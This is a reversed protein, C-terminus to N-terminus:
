RKCNLKINFNNPKNEQLYLLHGKNPTEDALISDGMSKMVQKSKWFNYSTHLFHITMAKVCLILHTVTGTKLKEVMVLSNFKKYICSTKFIDQITNKNVYM